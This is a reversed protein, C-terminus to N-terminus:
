HLHVIDMDCPTIPVLIWAEVADVETAPVVFDNVRFQQNPAVEVEVDSSAMDGTLRTGAMTGVAAENSYTVTFSDTGSNDPCAAPDTNFINCNNYVALTM